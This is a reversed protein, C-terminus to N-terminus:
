DFKPRIPFETKKRSNKCIINCMIYEDCVVYLIFCKEFLYKIDFFYKLFRLIEMGPFMM